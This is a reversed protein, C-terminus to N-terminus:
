KNQKSAKQKQKEVEKEKDELWKKFAQEALNDDKGVHFSEIKAKLHDSLKLMEM